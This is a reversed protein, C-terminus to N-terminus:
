YPVEDSKLKTYIDKKIEGIEKYSINQCDKGTLRRILEYEQESEKLKSLQELTIKTEESIIAPDLFVEEVTIGFIKSFMIIVENPVTLRDTEYGCYTYVSTNLLKALTKKSVNAKNRFYLFNNNMCESKELLIKIM